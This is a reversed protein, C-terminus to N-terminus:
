HKNDGPEDWPKLRPIWRPVRKKYLRYSEGFRRELDPEEVLPMYIANLLFFLLFWVLLALAGIVLAEGLLVVGVGSIMPNRVRRYVGQAVFRRPPDWPALTGQGITAFLRTTKVILTLGAVILTIGLILPLLNFPIPLPWGVNVPGSLYLIVGPIIIMATFPLILIARLHRLAQM